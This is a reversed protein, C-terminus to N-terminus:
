AETRLAEIAQIAAEAKAEPVFIHDHHFAAVANCPVDAASLAAAVRALFGVAQLDSFVSLELWVWRNDRPTEDLASTIVTLGESEQFLMAIDRVERLNVLDAWSSQESPITEFRWLGDRRIVSLSALLKSLDAEAM